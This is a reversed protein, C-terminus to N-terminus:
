VGSHTDNELWTRLFPHTSKDISLLELTIFLKNILHGCECTETGLCHRRLTWFGCTLLLCESCGALCCHYLYFWCYFCRHHTSYYMGNYVDKYIFSYGIKSLEGLKIFHTNSNWRKCIVTRLSLSTVHIAWTVYCTPSLVPNLGLDSGLADARLRQVLGTQENLVLCRPM